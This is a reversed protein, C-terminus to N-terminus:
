FELKIGAALSVPASFDPDDEARLIGQDLYTRAEAFIFTNEIGADEYSSTDGDPDLWDLQLLLGAGVYFNDTTGTVEIAPDVEKYKMYSYGGTVYPVLYPEKFIQDLYITGRVAPAILTFKTTNDDESASYYSISGGLSVSAWSFNKKIDFGLGSFPIDATLYDIPEYMSSGVEFQKTWSPHRDKFEKLYGKAEVKVHSDVYPDEEIEVQTKETLEKREEDTLTKENEYVIAPGTAEPEYHIPTGPEEVVPAPIAQESQELPSETPEEINKPVAKDAEQLEQELDPEESPDKTKLEQPSQVVPETPAETKPFPDVEFTNSDDKSSNKNEMKNQDANKQLQDEYNGPDEEIYEKREVTEKEPKDEPSIQQQEPQQEPEAVKNEEPAIPKEKVPAQEKGFEEDYQPKTTEEKPKAVKSDDQVQIDDITEIIEKSNTLQGNAQISLLFVLCILIKTTLGQHM